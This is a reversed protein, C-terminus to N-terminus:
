SGAPADPFYVTKTQTSTNPWSARKLSALSQRSAPLILTCLADFPGGGPPPPAVTGVPLVPAVPEEVLETPDPSDPPDPPDGAEVPDPLV